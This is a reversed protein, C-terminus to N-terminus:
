AGRFRGVGNGQGCRAEQEQPGALGPEGTTFGRGGCVGETPSSKLTENGMASALKGFCTPFLRACTRINRIRVSHRKFTLFQIIITINGKLSCKTPM